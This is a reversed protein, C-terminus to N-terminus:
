RNMSQKEVAQTKFEAIGEDVLKKAEDVEAFGNTTIRKGPGKYNKFWTEIILTVGQFQRELDALNNVEGFPGGPAVAILKDDREGKETMRMLGILRARVAQGRKYAPGLVLIDLPDGDGGMRKSLVTQPIIGYNAPYGLYKVVRPKGDLMDWVMKGEPIRVEWKDNAGAPIEIVATVTGDPNRPEYGSLFNKEGELTYPDLAKVGPALDDLSGAHSFGTSVGILLVALVIFPAKKM